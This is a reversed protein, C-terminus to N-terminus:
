SEVKEDASYLQNYPLAGCNILISRIYFKLKPSKSALLQQLDKVLPSAKSGTNQLCAAAPGFGSKLQQFLYSLGKDRDGTYVMAEALMCKVEPIVAPARLVAAAAQPVKNLLGTKTLGCIGSAGWYRVVPDSDGLYRILTNLQGPDRLSATEAATIEKAVNIKEKRVVEYLAGKKQLERRYERPIFGLDKQDRVTQQLVGKLRDLVAKYASQDALNVTELSDTQINYLEFTEVPLWFKLQLPDKIKGAMIAKDWAQQAPMQWQYDQRTGNPYASQYNWILKYHGDNVARAPAYSDGQNGRFTFIYQHQNKPANAAEGLFSSGVMFDPTTVGCLSLITPAFDVFSVLRNSVAPLSTGALHKWKPPFYVILPVLTGTEYVYAKGRPVTGGHDSYFFVITNDAEGSKELEKLQQGVWADMEKVADMNWSIDDRVEPLDPIYPPVAVKSMPVSRSSRGETTRTAVRSMHTIGSNFVAFFPKTKDPRDQYAAKRDSLDWVNKPTKMNNYDQKAKNMTFYGADRLYKPFYFADPVPRKERHIDTGLSVAYKGSIITSRSPSCQTGNSHAQTYRIGKAALRDLNPTKVLTNGYCSLYPSMDECVLWLINPRNQAFSGITILLCLLLGNKKM